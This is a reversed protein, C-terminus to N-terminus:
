GPDGPSETPGHPPSGEKGEHGAVCPIGSLGAPLLAALWAFVGRLAPHPSPGDGCLWAVARRLPLGSGAVRGALFSAALFEAVTRHQPAWEDDDVATFLRTGLAAELAAPNGTASALDELAAAAGGAYAGPGLSVTGRGALLMCACAAGAAEILEEPAFAAAATRPRARRAERTLLEFARRCLDHRSRPLGGGRSALELVLGLTQPNRLLSGLGAEEMGQLLAEPGVGRERAAAEVQAADLPLLRVALLGAAGACERLLSHGAVAAWEVPRCSLWFRPSGAEHLKGAVADLPAAVGAALAEDLADLYLTGGAAARGTHRALFNRVEAYAGGPYAEAADRFSTTQGMGPDGLLLVCVDPPLEALRLTRPEPELTEVSRALGVPVTPRPEGAEPWIETLRRV